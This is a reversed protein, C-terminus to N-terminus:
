LHNIITSATPEIERMGPYLPFYQRLSGYNSGDVPGRLIQSSRPHDDYLRPHQGVCSFRHNECAMSLRSKDPHVPEQLPSRATRKTAPFVDAIVGNCYIKYTSLDSLTVHLVEKRATGRVTRLEVAVAEAVIRAGTERM